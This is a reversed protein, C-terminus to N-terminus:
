DCGFSAASASVVVGDIDVTRAAIDITKSPLGSPPPCQSFSVSWSGSYYWPVWPAGDISYRWQPAQYPISVATIECLVWDSWFYCCRLIDSGSGAPPLGDCTTPPEMGGGSAGAGGGSGGGGGIGTGSGSGGGHGGGDGGGDGNAAGWALEQRIECGSALALAAFLGCLRRATARMASM